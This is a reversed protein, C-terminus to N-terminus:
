SALMLCERFRGCVDPLRIGVKKQQQQQEVAKGMMKAKYEKAKAHFHEREEEARALRRELVTVRVQAAELALEKAVGSGCSWEAAPM